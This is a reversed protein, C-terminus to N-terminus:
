FLGLGEKNNINVMLQHAGDKARKLKMKRLAYDIVDYIAWLSIVGVIVWDVMIWGEHGYRPRFIPNFLILLMVAGGIGLSRDENFLLLIYILLGCCACIFLRFLIYYWDPIDEMTAVILSAVM